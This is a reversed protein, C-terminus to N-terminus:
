GEVSLDGSQSAWGKGRSQSVGSQAGLVREADSAMARTAHRPLRLKNM